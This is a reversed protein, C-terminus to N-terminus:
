LTVPWHTKRQGTKKPTVLTGCNNRGYANSDKKPQLLDGDLNSCQEM